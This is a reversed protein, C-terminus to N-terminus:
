EESKVETKPESEFRIDELKLDKVKPNYKKVNLSKARIQRLPRWMLQSTNTKKFSRFKQGPNPGMCLYSWM